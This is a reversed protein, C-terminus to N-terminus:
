VSTDKDADGGECVIIAHVEDLEKNMLDLCISFAKLSQISGDLCVLFQFGKNELPNREYYYKSKFQSNFLWLNRVIFMPATTNLSMEKLTSGM